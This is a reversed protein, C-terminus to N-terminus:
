VGIKLLDFKNYNISNFKITIVKAEIVKKRKFKLQESCATKCRYELEFNGKYFYKKLM